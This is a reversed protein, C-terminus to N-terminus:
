IHLRVLIKALVEKGFNRNNLESDYRFRVMRNEILVTVTPSKNEAGAAATTGSEGALNLSSTHVVENSRSGGSVILQVM